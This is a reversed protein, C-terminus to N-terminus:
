DKERLMPFPCRNDRSIGREFSEGGVVKRLGALSHRVAEVAPWEGFVVHEIVRTAMPEDEFDDGVIPFDEPVDVVKIVAVDGVVMERVLLEKM